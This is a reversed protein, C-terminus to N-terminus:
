PAVTWEKRQAAENQSIINLSLILYYCTSVLIIQM